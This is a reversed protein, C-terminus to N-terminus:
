GQIVAKLDWNRLQAAALRAGEQALIASRLLNLVEQGGIGGGNDLVGLSDQIEKVIINGVDAVTFEADMTQAAIITDGGDAGDLSELDLQGLDHLTGEIVEHLLLDVLLGVRDDVGHTTTDVKISVLDSQTTELRIERSDTAAAADHENGATGAVV